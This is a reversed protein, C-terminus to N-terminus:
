PRRDRNDRDRPPRERREGRGRDNDGRKEEKVIPGPPNKKEPRNRNDPPRERRQASAPEGVGLLMACAAILVLTRRM